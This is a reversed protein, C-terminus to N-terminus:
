GIKRVAIDRDIFVAIFAVFVVDHKGSKTFFYDWVIESPRESRELSKNPLDCTLRPTEQVLQPV